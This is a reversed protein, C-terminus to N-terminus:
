YQQNQKQLHLRNEYLTEVAPKKPMPLGKHQHHNQNADFINNSNTNVPHQSPTMQQKTNNM